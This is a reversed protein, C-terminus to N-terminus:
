CPSLFESTLTSRTTSRCSPRKLNFIPPMLGNEASFAEPELHVAAIREFGKLKCAKATAALEKVVYQAAQM